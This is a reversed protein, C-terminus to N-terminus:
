EIETELAAEGAVNISFQGKGLRKAVDRQVLNSFVKGWDAVSYSWGLGATRYVTYVEDIGIASKGGHNKFWAMTTLFRKSDNKPNKQKAFEVFSVGNGALDLDDVIKPDKPKRTKSAKPASAARAVVEVAPAEEVEDIAIEGGSSVVHGNSGSALPAILRSHQVAPPRLANAIAQTLQAVDETGGLDADIWLLRIKGGGGYAPAKSGSQKAM